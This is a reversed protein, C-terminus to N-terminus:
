EEPESIPGMFRANTYEENNMEQLEMDEESWYFLIYLKQLIFSRYIFVIEPNVTPEKYWYYGPEKPLEKTWKM